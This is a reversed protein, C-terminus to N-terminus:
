SLYYEFLKFKRRSYYKLEYLFIIFWIERQFKGGDKYVIYKMYYSFFEIIGEGM